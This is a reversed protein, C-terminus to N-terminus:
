KHFWNQWMGRYAQELEATFRQADMLPGAQLRERLGTRVTKLCGPDLALGAAIDVYEQETKAVLEPLGANLLTTLGMRSTFHRGALTVLPVGMWLTDLSTTHGNFPFPDLAIDIASYLALHNERAPAMLVLRDAAVGHRAFRGEIEARVRADAIGFVVLALRSGPVRDLVRAWLAIVEDTVKGFHNFCGFTVYGNSESPAAPVPPSEQPPAYCFFAQPLRWLQESNFQETMGPPEAHMDTIRYDIASLGSSFPYGLYAVQIPAPKRAFTLLRNDGTHGALDVLIDIGDARIREALRDDPLHRCPIWHDAYAQLRLTAADIHNHNYYCFIEFRAKDHNALVPEIFTAVPHNRFDPSVYGIKLRRHPDRGNAHPRWGAQLPAEFRDAFRRHEAFIEAATYRGSYLMALLLSDHTEADGPALALAKRYCAIAEDPRGHRHFAIGQNCYAEAFDPRSALAREFCQLAEILRGQEKYEIGLNNNAEAFDPKLLLATQYCTIAEDPQGKAAFVLGLNSHAEAFDPKLALASLYCSIADDLRGQNALEVGRNNLLAPDNPPM